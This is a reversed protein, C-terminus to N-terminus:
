IIKQTKRNKGVFKAEVYVFVALSYYSLIIVINYMNIAFQLGLPVSDIFAFHGKEEEAAGDASEKFALSARSLSKELLEANSLNMPRNDSM